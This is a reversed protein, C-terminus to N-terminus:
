LRFRCLLICCQLASASVTEFGEPATRVLDALERRPTNFPDAPQEVSRGRGEPSLPETQAANDRARCQCAM